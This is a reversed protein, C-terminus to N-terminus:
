EADRVEDFNLIWSRPLEQARFPIEVTKCRCGITMQELSAGGVVAGLRVKSDCLHCEYPLVTRTKDSVTM